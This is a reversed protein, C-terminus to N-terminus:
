SPIMGVCVYELLEIIIIFFVLDSKSVRIKDRYVNGCASIQRSRFPVRSFHWMLGSDREQQFTFLAPLWLSNSPSEYIAVINDLECLAVAANATIIPTTTPFNRTVASNSVHTSTAHQLVTKLYGPTQALRTLEFLALVVCFQPVSPGAGRQTYIDSM